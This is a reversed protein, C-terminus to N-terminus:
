DLWDGRFANRANARRNIYAQTEAESKSIDLLNQLYQRFGAKKKELFNKFCISGTNIDIWAKAKDSYTECYLRDISSNDPRFRHLGLRELRTVQEQTLKTQRRQEIAQMALYMCTKEGNEYAERAAELYAIYDDNTLFGWTDGGDASIRVGDDDFQEFVGMWFDRPMDDRYKHEIWVRDLATYLSIKAYTALDMARKVLLEPWWQVEWEACKTGRPLYEHRCDITLEPTDCGCSDDYSYVNWEDTLIKGTKKYWYRILRQAPGLPEPLVPAQIGGGGGLALPEAPASFVRADFVPLSGSKTEAPTEERAPAQTMPMPAMNELDAENWGHNANYLM